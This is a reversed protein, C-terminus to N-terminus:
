MNSQKVVEQDSSLGIVQTNQGKWHNFEERAVERDKLKFQGQSRWVFWWWNLSSEVYIM